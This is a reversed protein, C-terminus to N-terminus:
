CQYRLSFESSGACYGSQSKTQAVDSASVRGNGNTDGILVSMSVASDGFVQGFSDTVGSLNITITQQDAVNTLNVFVANDTFTVPESITASGHTVTAQGKVVSNSFTIVLTEDGAGDGNRCEVGPEGTLPLSIDFTGASGHVKRSVAQIMTLAPAGVRITEDANDSVFLRGSRAILVNAPFNFRAASGTGDAVQGNGWGPLGALTRIVLEPSMRRITGTDSIYLNDASDMMLGRPGGFRIAGGVGDVHDSYNFVGVLTSVVADPTIKRITYNDSVYINGSRDTALGSVGSFRAAGGVGNVYGSVGAMGALTTVMGNQTIKRIAYHSGMYINGSADTTLAGPYYFRAANGVGDVDGPSGALGAFTTVMGDSTIKRVTHNASDSVFINDGYIALGGPSYFSAAGGIGDSSGRNGATGAFTSVVGESTIKRITDNGADAVYINGAQDEVVQAPNYFVAPFGILRSVAAEAIVVKRICDNGGEAVYLNGQNDAVLDSPSNFQAASGIGDAYNRIGASGALTTVVAGPAIKRILSNGFESVYLNGAADACIGNPYYFRAASGVGDAYGRNGSSGALTTM